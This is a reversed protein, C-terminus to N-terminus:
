EPLVTFTAETTEKNISVLLECYANNPILEDGSCCNPVNEIFFIGVRANISSDDDSMSIVTATVSNNDVEGGHSTGKHLPLIGPEAGTIESTLTDIFADTNWYKLSEPLRPM